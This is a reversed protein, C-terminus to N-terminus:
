ASRGFMRGEQRRRRQSGMEDEGERLGGEHHANSARLGGSRASARWYSGCYSSAEHGSVNSLSQQSTFHHLTPTGASRYIFSLSPGVARQHNSRSTPTGAPTARSTTDESRRMCGPTPFPTCLAPDPHLKRSARCVAPTPPFHRTLHARMDMITRLWSSWHLM